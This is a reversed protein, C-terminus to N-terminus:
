GSTLRSAKKRDLSYAWVSALLTAGTKTYALWRGDPSWRYDFIAKRDSSDAETAKGSQVDVWFLRDKSDGFALKKSDPSWLPPFKWM